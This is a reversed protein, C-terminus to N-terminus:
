RIDGAAGPLVAGRSDAAGVDIPGLIMGFTQCKLSGFGKLITPQISTADIKDCRSPPMATGSVRTPARAVISQAFPRTSAMMSAKAIDIRTMGMNRTRDRSSPQDGDSTGSAVSIANTTITPM